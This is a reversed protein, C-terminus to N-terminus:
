EGREKRGESRELAKRLDDPSIENIMPISNLVDVSRKFIEDTIFKDMFCDWMKDFEESCDGCIDLGHIREWGHKAMYLYLDNNNKIKDFTEERGCRDCKVKVVVNKM